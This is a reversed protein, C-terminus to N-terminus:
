PERAVSSALRLLQADTTVLPVELHTALAAYQARIGDLGSALWNALEAHPPDQLAFGLRDLEGALQALRDRSLGNSAAATELAHLPFITPAHVRLLGAEYEARLGRSPDSPPFWALFATAELVVRKM